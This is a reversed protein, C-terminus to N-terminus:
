VELKRSVMAPLDFANILSQVGLGPLQLEERAARATFREELNGSIENEDSFLIYGWLHYFSPVVVGYSRVNKFVKNLVTRIHMHNEPKQTDLAGGQTAVIANQNLLPKLRKYLDEGYLFAAPSEWDDVDILDGIVIDFKEDCCKIYDNIDDYLVELRSDAFAEEGWAPIFTKCLSVFEEDIDVMVVKEVSRYKLVERATAGEGGGMILVTKPDPHTLMAPHVLAEHYMHEDSECSQIDGDLSICTGHMRSEFFLYEQFATRGSVIVKEIEREVSDSINAKQRYNMMKKEKEGFLVIVEYIATTLKELDAEEIIYPPMIYVLNLFPRIWVGRKIFADRMWLLNVTYRLEVVGIAGLVRVDAVIELSRCRNLERRLIYEIKKVRQEWPSSQLLTISANAISCALPNAMFTPGHMLIDGNSELTKLVFDRTLVAALSVYGGTLAKGVCLIDPVIDSHEYAFMKGTRGFGTAIEDFILLLAYNDCLARLKNLFEASYMRMGGAGQVVPEIIVAAIEQHREKIISEVNIIYADDWAADFRGEPPKAFINQHLINNFAAHMGTVPDCVSMAGFTDGHYAKEFSLIKTKQPKNQAHWYQFSMKLAVEVSVSGSDCLFVHEFLGYNLDRLRKVLEIAPKHTLGGFMVHSMTHIQVCAAENLVKVNYGHIASWWSSMGDILRSGDEMELFVGSASSIFIEDTKSFASAYPHIVHKRDYELLEKRV